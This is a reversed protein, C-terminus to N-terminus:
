KPTNGRGGGPPNGTISSYNPNASSLEGWDSDDANFNSLLASCLTCLLYVADIIQSDCYIIKEYSVFSLSLKPRKNQYGRLKKKNKKIQYFDPHCISLKVSLKVTHTLTRPCTNTLPLSCVCLSEFKEKM